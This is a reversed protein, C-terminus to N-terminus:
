GKLGGCCKQVSLLLLKMGIQRRDSLQMLTDIGFLGGGGRWVCTVRMELGEAPYVSCQVCKQVSSHRIVHEFQRHTNTLHCRRECPQCQRKTSACCCSNPQKGQLMFALCATLLSAPSLEIVCVHRM